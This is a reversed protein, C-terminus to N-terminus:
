KPDDKGSDVQGRAERWELLSVMDSINKLIAANSRTDREFAANRNHPPVGGGGPMKKVGYLGLIPRIV